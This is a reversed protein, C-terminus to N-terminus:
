YDSGSCWDGRIGSQGKESGLTQGNRGKFAPIKEIKEVGKEQVRKDGPIAIDIKTAENTRKNLLVIDPKRGQIHQDCQIMMDWSLKYEENEACSSPQQNYLETAREKNAKKCMTWHVYRAM